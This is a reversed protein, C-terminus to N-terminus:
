PTPQILTCSAPLGTLDGNLYPSPEGARHASVFDSIVQATIEPHLTHGGNHHCDIVVRGANALFPLAAQAAAELNILTIGLAGIVDGGGGHTSLIPTGIGTADLAPWQWDVQIFNVMDIQAPDNFWVGSAPIIVSFLSPYRTHLLSTMVSGASFGFSAIRKTDIDLQQKACGVMAEFFPFDVNSYDPMGSRIDWDLGRPNGFPGLGTDEPTLVLVPLDPNADPDFGLNRFAQEDVRSNGLQACREGPRLQRSIGARIEGPLLFFLGLRAAKEEASENGRHEQHEHNQQDLEVAYVLRQQDHARDDKRGYAYQHGEQDGAAGEADDHGADAHDGDGADDHVVVDNQDIGIVVQAAFPPVSIVGCDCGADQAHPGDHEGRDVVDEAQRREQEHGVDIKDSAFDGDARRGHLPPDIKGNRDGATEPKRGEDRENQRGAHQQEAVTRRRGPM